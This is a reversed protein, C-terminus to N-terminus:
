VRFGFETRVYSPVPGELVNRWDEITVFDLDTRAKPLPVVDAAM